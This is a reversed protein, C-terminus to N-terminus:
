SGSIESMAAPRSEQYSWVYAWAWAMAVAQKGDWGTVAQDGEGQVCDVFSRLEEVYSETYREVFSPQPGVSM